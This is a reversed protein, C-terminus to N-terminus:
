LKNLHGRNKKGGSAQRLRHPVLYECSILNSFAAVHVVYAIFSECTWQKKM